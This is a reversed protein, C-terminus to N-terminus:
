YNKLFIILNRLHLVIKVVSELYDIEKLTDQKQISVIEKANKLKSYKKFYLKANHSPSYKSDLPITILKNNDYYNEVSISSINKNTIKYLNSTILEGYIKYMDMNNCNLLKEEINKLRKKYKKLNESVINNIHNKNNLFIERTEKEFYFDDLYYNLHYQIENKDSLSLIYDKQINNDMIPKFTLNTSSVINNDYLSLVDFKSPKPSIYRCTPFIDRQANEEISSHRLSDIIINNENTLIINSHKGM